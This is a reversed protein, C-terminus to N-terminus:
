VTDDPHKTKEGNLTHSKKKYDVNSERNFCLWGNHGKQKRGCKVGHECLVCLIKLFCVSFSSFGFFFFCFNM